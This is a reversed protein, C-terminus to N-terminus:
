ASEDGYSDAFEMAGAMVMAVASPMDDPQIELLGALDPAGSQPMVAIVGVALEIRGEIVDALYHTVTSAAYEKANGADCKEAIRRAADSGIQRWDFDDLRTSM